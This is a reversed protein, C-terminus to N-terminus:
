NQTKQFEPHLRAKAAAEERTSVEMRALVASVHHDVTKPSIHLRAAIQANSLNEVLLSLIEVQRATLGFPNARTAARPQRPIGRTGSARLRERIRGADPIAGLTDFIELATLQAGTDGAALARAKEYPCGLAEWASAAGQWDGEIELVFPRLMWPFTEVPEGCRWRWYALEAAFGPQRNQEATPYFANAYRLASDPDGALWAAEAAACYYIGMRQRHGTRNTQELAEALIEWAGAQGQRARVRGTAAQAPNRSGAEAARPLLESAIRLSEEWHGQFLRLMAEWALLLHTSPDIDFQRVYPLAQSLLKEAQELQYVDIYTMFLNPFLVAAMFHNEHELAQALSQELQRIGAQHDVPLLCLGLIQSVGLIPIMDNEELALRHAKKAYDLAQEPDGLALARSAKVRYADILGRSPPLPELIEMARELTQEAEDYERVIELTGALRVLNTGERQPLGAQRSLEAAQRYARLTTERGPETQASIAHGEHLAIQEQIPLSAAHKLALSYLSAAARHMGQAAAQRAAAPSFSLIAESDGTAEAHHVLRALNKKTNPSSKLVDLAMRNLVQRRLPSIAELITRRALEHRFLLDDEHAVLIGAALSEEVAPAEAGSVSALLWPEVRQGIVAAAELVAYGSDSLRAARSLVAERINIPIEVGPNALAETVFFPNGGTQRHLVAADLGRDGVLTRVASESLPPLLIRRADSSSVLDGLLGQLPHRPALEDDRYTLVLLAHTQRIRRGLYRLLDLTAEDAWHVDEFIAVAPGRKLESLVAPFITPRPAGRDLLGRLEEGVQPAMDHLPGLPRPTFLADCGGWLIRTDDPCGATFAELLTSKGIGAEGSVLTLCGTEVTSHSLAAKLQSIQSDRELIGM